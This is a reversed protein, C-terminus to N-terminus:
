KKYGFMKRVYGIRSLLWAVSLDFILKGIIIVPLQYSEAMGYEVMRATLQWWPFLDLEVIHVCLVLLSYRGFYALLTAFVKTKNAIICSFLMVIFCACVCGFIDVIGRGIDCHVLWFSQFNKIFSIWITLAFIGAFTKVELPVKEIEKTLTHLLYGMYMFLTACAGAQISLPFWLISRSVYGLIFLAFVFIM